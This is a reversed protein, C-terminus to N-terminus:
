DYHNRINQLIQYLEQKSKAFLSGLNTPSFARKIAFCCTDFPTNQSRLQREVEQFPDITSSSINILASPIPSSLLGTHIQLRQLLIKEFSVLCEMPEAGFVLLRSGRERLKQQICFPTYHTPSEYMRIIVIGDTKINYLEDLPIYEPPPIPSRNSLFYTRLETVPFYDGSLYVNGYLSELKHVLNPLLKEHEDTTLNCGEEVIGIVFTTQNLVNLNASQGDLNWTSL